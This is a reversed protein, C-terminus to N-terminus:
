VTKKKRKWFGVAVLRSLREERRQEAGQEQPLEEGEGHVGSKERDHATDGDGGELLEGERLNRHLPLFNFNFFRGRM